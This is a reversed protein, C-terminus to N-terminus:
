IYITKNAMLMFSTPTYYPYTTHSGIQPGLALGLALQSSRSQNRGGICVGCVNVVSVGDVFASHCVNIKVSQYSPSPNIVSSSHLSWITLGAPTDLQRAKEMHTCCNYSVLVAVM